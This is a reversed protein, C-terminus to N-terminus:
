QETQKRVTGMGTAILWSRRRSRPNAPRSCIETHVLRDRRNHNLYSSCFLEKQAKITTSAFKLSIIVKIEEAPVQQACLRAQREETDRCVSHHCLLQLWALNRSSDRHGLAHACPVFTDGTITYKTHTTELICHLSGRTAPCFTDKDCPNAEPVIQLNCSHWQM